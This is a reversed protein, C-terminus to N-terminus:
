SGSTSCSAIVTESQEDFSRGDFDGLLEIDRLGASRLLAELQEPFLYRQPICFAQEHMRGDPERIRYLYRAVLIQNAPIWDCRELVEIRRGESEITCTPSFEEELDLDPAPTFVRYVDFILRGGPALHARTCRLCSLVAAESLLCYLGNYPIIIRDFCEGLAFGAMDALVLQTRESMASSLRSLRQEFLALMGPHTDLGVFRHGARVLGLGMRGSGCGLELVSGTGRCAALYFGVDGPSGRHVLDYLDPDYLPEM